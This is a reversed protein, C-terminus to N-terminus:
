NNQIYINLQKQATTDLPNDIVAQELQIRQDDGHYKLKLFVSNPILTFIMLSISYIVHRFKIGNIFSTFEPNSGAPHFISLAFSLSLAMLGIIAFFFQYGVSLIKMGIAMYVITFSLGSLTAIVLNSKPSNGKFFFWGGGVNIVAALMWSFLLIVQFPTQIYMILLVALLLVPLILEAKKIM